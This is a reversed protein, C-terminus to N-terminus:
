SSMAEGTPNEERRAMSQDTMNTISVRESNPSASGVVVNKLIVDRAM